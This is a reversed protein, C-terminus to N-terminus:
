RVEIRDRGNKKAAYLARDARDFTDVRDEGPRYETVGFSATLPGVTEFDFANIRAQLDRAAAVAQDARTQPLLVFFEEGGIRGAADAKRLHQRLLEAFQQLVADGVSHGWTDNVAKFHDIDMLIVSFPQGYREARAREEEFRQEIHARNWLSTLSDIQASHALECQQLFTAKLARELIFAALLGFSFAALIWFLHLQVLGTPMPLQITAAIVLAVITGASISAQRLPLGSVTFTWIISLYIEPAFVLFQPSGANLYLNAANAVVPAIMLLAWMWRQLSARLSMAAVALLMGPVLLAHAFVRLGTADADVTQEIGAYLLYMAATLLAIYRVQPIRAARLWASFAHRTAEDEGHLPDLRARLPRETELNVGRQSVPRRRRHAM